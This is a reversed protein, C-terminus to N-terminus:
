AYDAHFSILDFIQFFQLGKDNSIGIAIGIEYNKSM